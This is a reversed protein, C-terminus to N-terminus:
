SAPQDDRISVMLNNSITPRRGLFALAAAGTAIINERISDPLAAKWEAATKPWPKFGSKPILSQQIDELSYKNGLINRQTVQAFM